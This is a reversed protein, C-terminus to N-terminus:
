NTPITIKFLPFDFSNVLTATGIASGLGVSFGAWFLGTKKMSNKIKWNDMELDKNLLSISHVKELKEIKHEYDIILNSIQINKQKKLKSIEEIQAVLENILNSYKLEMREVTDDVIRDVEEYYFFRGEDSPKNNATLLNSLILFTLIIKIKM